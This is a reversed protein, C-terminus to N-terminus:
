DVPKMEGLLEWTYASRFVNGAYALNITLGEKKLGDEPDDYSWQQEKYHHFCRILPFFTQAYPVHGNFNDGYLMQSNKVQKWSSGSPSVGNTIGSDSYYNWESCTNGCFEYQYSSKKPDDTSAIQMDAPFSDPRGGEAGDSLDSKCFFTKPSKLFKPSLDSLWNPLQENGFDQRYVTLAVSFQKLNNECHTQRARERTRSLAPMLLGVLVGIITIVVLLEILTFARAQNKMFRTM